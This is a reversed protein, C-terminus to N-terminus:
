GKSDYKYLEYDEIISILRNAYSPDTAYGAKKLGRAWAKYDTIQLKFLSAYRTRGSLFQSHDEYSDAVSKYVRFCEGKADDDHYTKKGRWSDHCKIGFHNNSKLALESRGAGSELLGQALTISAPIKYKQMQEIAMPAYQKIYANYTNKRQAHLSTTLCLSMIVLMWKSHQKM